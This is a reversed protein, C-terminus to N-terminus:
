PAYGSRWRLVDGKRLQDYDESPVVRAGDKVMGRAYLPGTLGVWPNITQDDERIPMNPAASGRNLYRYEDHVYAKHSETVSPDLSIEQIAQQWDNPNAIMNGTETENSDYDIMGVVSPNNLRIDASPEVSTADANEQKLLVGYKNKRMIEPLFGAATQFSTAFSEMSMSYILIIAVVIVIAILIGNM